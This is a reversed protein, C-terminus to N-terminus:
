LGLLEKKKVDFEEQTIIGEDLLQKFKRIEDFSNISSTKNQTAKEQEQAIIMKKSVQEIEAIRKSVISKVSEVRQKIKKTEFPISNNFFFYECDYLSDVNDGAPVFKLYGNTTNPRSFIDVQSIKEYFVKRDGVTILQEVKRRREQSKKETIKEKEQKNLTASLAVGVGAQVIRGSLLGKVLNQKDDSSLLENDARYDDYYNDDFQHFMSVLENKKIENKTTIICYDAFVKIIQGAKGNITTVFGDDIYEDFYQAIRQVITESINNSVAKQMVLKKQEMLEEISLFNRDGWLPVNVISACNKCLVVDGFNSTLLTTKGCSMCKAM